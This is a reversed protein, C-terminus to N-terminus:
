RGLEGSDLWRTPRSKAIKILRGIEWLLVVVALVLVVVNWPTAGYLNSAHVVSSPFSEIGANSKIRMSWLFWTFYELGVWALALASLFLGILRRSWLGAVSLFLALGIRVDMMLISPDWDVIVMTAADLRHRFALFGTGLWVLHVVTAFGAAVMAFRFAADYNLRAILEQGLKRSFTNRM